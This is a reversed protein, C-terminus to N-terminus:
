FKSLLGIVSLLILSFVNSTSLLNFPWIFSSDISWKNRILLYIVYVQFVILFFCLFSLYPFLGLFPFILFSLYFIILFIMSIKISTEVGLRIAITNLGVLKDGSIDKIDKLFLAWLAFFTMMFSLAYAKHTIPSSLNWLVLTFFPTSLTYTIVETAYNEKLRILYKGLIVKDSYMWTLLVVLLFLIVGFLSVSWSVVLYVSLFYLIVCLVGTFNRINKNRSLISDRGSLVDEEVDNVHNWLNITAFFLFSITTIKFFIFLDEGDSLSFILIPVIPLPYYISIPTASLRVLDKIYDM